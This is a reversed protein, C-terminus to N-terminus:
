QAVDKPYDLYGWKNMVVGDKLLMLGPNTRMATKSATGDLIMFPIDTMGWAEQYTQCIDRGASCAVYFPINMAKAKIALAKLDDLKKINAKEPERLFWIYVYGKAGLIAQAQDVDNSDNLSFDHIEPLGTAPTVEVTNSSVFKWSPDKWPYNETTFEQKVGNKEYVFKTAFTAEKYDPGPKMKELVNNGVKYPLCDKVPLHSLTWWQFGFAFVAGVGVIAANYASRDFIPFVRYRFIWLFLVIATLAVDKYFTATNSIKICDGFCGCEKIKGSTLAYWTLFTFFINLLLLLTVYLRFANGVIMAVGSIIEFAIMLVSFTLTYKLMFGMNWVEFFENMKYTLGLPDNAKVVGSFIFLLGVAVRLITIIVKM